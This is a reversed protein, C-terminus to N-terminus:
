VFLQLHCNSDNAAGYPTTVEPPIRHWKSFAAQETDDTCLNMIENLVICFLFSDTM